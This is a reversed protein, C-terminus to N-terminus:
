TLNSFAQFTPVLVTFVITDTTQSLHLLIEPWPVKQPATLLHHHQALGYVAWVFRKIIPKQASCRTEEGIRLQGASAINASEALMTISGFGSLHLATRPLRCNRKGNKQAARAERSYGREGSRLLTVARSWLLEASAHPTPVAASTRRWSNADPQWSQM